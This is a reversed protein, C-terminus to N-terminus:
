FESQGGEVALDSGRVKGGGGHGRESDRFSVTAVSPNPDRLLWDRIVAKRGGASSITSTAGVYGSHGVAMRM